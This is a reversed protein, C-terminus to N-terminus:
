LSYASAGLAALFWARIKQKFGDIKIKYHVFSTDQRLFLKENKGPLILCGM